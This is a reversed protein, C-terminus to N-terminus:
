QRYPHHAPGFRTDLVTMHGRDTRLIIVGCAKWVIARFVCYKRKKYRPDLTRRGSSIGPLIAPGFAQRAGSYPQRIWAPDLAAAGPVGLIAESASYM